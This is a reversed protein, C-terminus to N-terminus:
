VVAGEEEGAAGEVEGAAGEEETSYYARMM